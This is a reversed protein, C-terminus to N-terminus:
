HNSAKYLFGQELLAGRAFNIILQTRNFMIFQKAKVPVINSFGQIKKLWFFFFALWRASCLENRVSDM